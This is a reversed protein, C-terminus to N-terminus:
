RDADGRRAGHIGRRGRGARRAFRVQSGARFPHLRAALLGAGLWNIPLVSLASLGLLVCIAGVVGPAIMGPSTFEIYICLGGIVLLILAINPDAIASVIRQRLSREYTEIAAGSTHLTTTSGDFRTVTRGNIADLM